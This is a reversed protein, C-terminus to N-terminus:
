VVHLAPQKIRRGLAHLEGLQAAAGALNSHRFFAESGSDFPGSGVEDDQMWVDAGRARLFRCRRSPSRTHDTPLARSQIRCRRLRAAGYLFPCSAGQHREIRTAARACYPVGSPEDVRERCHALVLGLREADARLLPCSVNPQILALDLRAGGDRVAVQNLNTPTRSSFPLSSYGFPSSTCVTSGHLGGFVQCPSEESVSLAASVSM